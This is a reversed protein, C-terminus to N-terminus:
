RCSLIHRGGCVFGKLVHVWGVDGVV